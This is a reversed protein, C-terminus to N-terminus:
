MTRDQHEDEVSSGDKLIGKDGIHDVLSNHSQGQTGHYVLPGLLHGYRRKRKTKPKNPKIKSKNM